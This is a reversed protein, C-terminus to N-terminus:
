PQPKPPVSALFSRILARDKEDKIRTFLKTGLTLITEPRDFPM